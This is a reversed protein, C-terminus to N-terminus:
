ILRFRTWKQSKYRWIFIAGRFLLDMSMGIAVGIVGWKLWMGFLASFFLRAFVTLSVSVIMTFKIDGAARLGNSLSGAFPYALGNFINNILVLWIVLQKAEPSIASYKVILPTIAFILANWIVSLVFTIKNLKKFYFNAADIDRAGMCQGIVTTYVPAMALGMISALSWISQAVGNAAIQYTGFLAVMSSLAVKVLQHVGNEVGNPLAIGMIKKLLSGDWAFVDKLKFRVTNKRGFCFVTVAVASLVRSILSPYAVGAAGLHLWFVGVCNGVVNIINTVASIYMTVNTKGISRCLSAGADYVALAPLSLTTILLYTECASMVDADIKGFLLRLLQTRFLVILVTMVVSIVTSIMLLQGSARSAVDERKFGIYQCIIVAGGSSLATFLFILVTNFSTVLSVGSVDAESSFSVVFTDAIGVFMLLFQEIFLPVILNRLDKNTFM